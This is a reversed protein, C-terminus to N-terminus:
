FILDFEIENKEATMKYLAAGMTLSFPVQGRYSLAHPWNTNVTFVGQQPSLPTCSRNDSSCM